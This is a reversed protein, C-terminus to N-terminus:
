AAPRRGWGLGRAKPAPPHKSEPVPVCLWVQAYSRKRWSLDKGAPKQFGRVILMDKYPETKAYAMEGLLPAGDPGFVNATDFEYRAVKGRGFELDGVVKRPLFWSEPMEEGEHHTEYVTYM